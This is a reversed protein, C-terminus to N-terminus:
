SEVVPQWHMAAKIYDYQDLSILFRIAMTAAQIAEEKVDNKDAKQYITQLIAKELEGVEEDLIAKAHLPDTPWAPFKQTARKLEDLIEDIIKVVIPKEM